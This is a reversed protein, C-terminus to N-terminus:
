KYEEINLKSNVYQLFVRGLKSSSDFQEIFKLVDYGIISFIYEHEPTKTKLFKNIYKEANITDELLFLNFAHSLYIYAKKMEINYVHINSEGNYFFYPVSNEPNEIVKSEVIQISKKQLEISYKINGLCRYTNALNVYSIFMNGSIGLTKSLIEVSKNFNNLRYYYYGINNLSTINWDSHELAIEYMEIAKSDNQDLDYLVGLGLYGAAFTPDINIAKKYYNYSKQRDIYSHISGLLYLIHIDTPFRQNLVLLKQKLSELNITTDNLITSKMLGLNADSNDPYKKLIKNFEVEAGIFDGVDLLKDGYDLSIKLYENNSNTEQQLEQVAISKQNCNTKITCIVTIFACIALVLQALSSKAFEM